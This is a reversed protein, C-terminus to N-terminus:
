WIVVFLAVTVKEGLNEWSFVAQARKLRAIASEHFLVVSAPRGNTTQQLVREHVVEEM